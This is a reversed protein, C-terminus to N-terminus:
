PLGVRALDRGPEHCCYDSDFTLKSQRFNIHPSHRRLWPAGLIIEHSLPTVDLAYPEENGGICLQVPDYHTIPGTSSFNGDAMIMKMPNPKSTHSTLYNQSEKENICSGQSGCDVLARTEFWTDEKTDKFEVDIYFLKDYEPQVLVTMVASDKIVPPMTPMTPFQTREGSSPGLTVRRCRRKGDRSSTGHTNRHCCNELDNTSLPLKPEHIWSARLLLM